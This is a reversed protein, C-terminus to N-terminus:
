SHLEPDTSHVSPLDTSLETCAAVELLVTEAVELGEALKLEIGEALELGGEVLM